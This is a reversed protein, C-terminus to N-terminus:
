RRPWRRAPWAMSAAIRARLRPDPLWTAPDYRMPEM